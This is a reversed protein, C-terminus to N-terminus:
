LEVAYYHAGGEDWGVARLRIRFPQRAACPDPRVLEVDKVLLGLCKPLRHGGDGPSIGALWLPRGLVEEYLFVLAPQPKSRRRRRWGGTWM